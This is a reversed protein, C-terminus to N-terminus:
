CGQQEYLSCFEQNYSQSGANCYMDKEDLCKQNENRTDAAAGGTAGSRASNGGSKAAALKSALAINVGIGVGTASLTAIGATKFGRVNKECKELEAVKQARETQLQELKSTLMQIQIDSSAAGIAGVFGFIFFVGCIIATKVRGLRPAIRAMIRQMFFLDKWSM